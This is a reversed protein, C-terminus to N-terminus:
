TKTYNNEDDSDSGTLIPEPSITENMNMLCNIEILVFTGYVQANCFTTDVTTKQQAMQFRETGLTNIINKVVDNKIFEDVVIKKQHKDFYMNNDIDLNYYPTKKKHTSHMNSDYTFMNNNCNNQFSIDHQNNLVDLINPYYNKNISQRLSPYFGDEDEFFPYNDMYNKDDINNRSIYKKIKDMDFSAPSCTQMNAVYLINEYDGFAIYMVDMELPYPDEGRMDGNYFYTGEAFYMKIPIRNQELSKNYINALKAVDSNQFISLKNNIVIESKYKIDNKIIHELMDIFIDAKNFGIYEILEINNDFDTSTIYEKNFIKVILDFQEYDITTSNYEYVIDDSTEFTEGLFHSNFNIAVKILTEGFLLINAYNIVYKKNTEPFTIVVIKKSKKDVCLLNATLIEKYGCRIIEGEHRIDKRFLVM